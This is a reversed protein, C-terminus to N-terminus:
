KESEQKIRDIASSFKSSKTRTQESLESAAPPLTSVGRGEKRAMLNGVTEKSEEKKTGTVHPKRNHQIATLHKEGAPVSRDLDQSREDVSKDTNNEIYFIEVKSLPGRKGKTAKPM